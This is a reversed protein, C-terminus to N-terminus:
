DLAAFFSWIAGGAWAPWGHGAFATESHPCWVVPTDSCGPHAECPAPEVPTTAEDCGALDRWYVHSGEGQTFPVVADETGHTIWAAVPVGLCQGFPGGGAVPAIARIIGGRACALTNSFYGGMSHGTSFIRLPDICYESDLSALLADFFDVDPGDAILSWGTDGNLAAQPLGDPYVVIAAGASASEVGFYSRAQSANSTRGHWAFVTPYATDSDYDDPVSLIYTRDVGGSQLTRQQVGTPAGSGGCGAAAPADTSHSADTATPSADIGADSGSNCAAAATALGIAILRRVRVRM